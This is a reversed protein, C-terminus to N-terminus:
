VKPYKFPTAGMAWAAMVKKCVETDKPRSSDFCPGNYLTIAKEAKAECHFVEMHHVLGENGSQIIAEFQLKHLLQQFPRNGFHALHSSILTSAMQM